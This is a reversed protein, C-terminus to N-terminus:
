REKEAWETGGLFLPNGAQNGGTKPRTPIATAIGKVQKSTVDIKCCEGGFVNTPEGECFAAGRGLFISRRKEPVRKIGKQLVKGM